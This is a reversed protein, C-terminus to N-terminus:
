LWYKNVFWDAVELFICVGALIFFPKRSKGLADGKMVKFTTYILLVGLIIGM